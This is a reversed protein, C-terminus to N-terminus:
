VLGTTQRKTPWHCAEEDSQNFTQYTVPRLNRCLCIYNYLHWWVQYKVPVVPLATPSFIQWTSFNRWLIQKGCAASTTGTVLILHPLIKPAFTNASRIASAAPRQSARRFIKQPSQTPTLLGSSKLSFVCETIQVAFMWIYGSVYIEYTPLDYIAM